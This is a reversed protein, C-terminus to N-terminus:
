NPIMDYFKLALGTPDSELRFNPSKKVYFELENQYHDGIQSIFNSFLIETINNTDFYEWIVKESIIQYNLGNNGISIASYYINEIWHSSVTFNYTQNDQKDLLKYSCSHLSTQVTNLESSRHMIANRIEVTSIYFDILETFLSSDNQLLQPLHPLLVTLNQQVKQKKINFSTMTHNANELSELINIVLLDIIKFISIYANFYVISIYKEHCERPDNFIYDRVYHQGSMQFNEHKPITKIMEFLLFLETQISDLFKSNNFMIFSFHNLRYFNTNEMNKSCMGGFLQFM